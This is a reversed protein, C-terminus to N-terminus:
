HRFRPQRLLDLSAERLAASKTAGIRLRRHFGIMTEAASASDISWQSVVTSPCGALFLAWAMGIVGEGQRTRGRASDCASLVVLDSRLPLRAIERGELLGDDRGAPAFLLHSYLPNQDNLVGHTAIHVIRADVIEARLRQETAAAGTFVRQADGYLRAIAALQREAEPLAPLGAAAPPNGFALLALPASRHSTTLRRMEALATLSPAYSLSAHEALYRGDDVVLAQFPLEWLAGDPIVILEKRDRWMPWSSGLLRAFLKKSAADFGLDRQAIQQRLAKVEKTLAAATIAVGRVRVSSPTVVFVFTRNPTVVFEIAASGDRLAAPKADSTVDRQLLDLLVRAKAQEAYRLSEAPESAALLSVIGLYPNLRSEFFLARQQESGGSQKRGAEVSEIGEAYAARAEKRRGLARLSDGRVTAAAVVVPAVNGRATALARDALYLALHPAGNEQALLAADTEAVAAQAPDGVSQSLTWAQMYLRMAERRQGRQRAIEGLNIAAGAVGMPDKTQQKIALSREYYGQARTLENRRIAINGLNNLAFSRIRDNNAADALELAKEFWSQAEDLDGFVFANNGLNNTVGAVAEAEGLKAFMSRAIRLEALAQALNGRTREAVALSNHIYAITRPDKTHAFAENLLDVAEGPENRRTAYIAIAQLESAIIDDDGALRALELAEQDYPEGKSFQRENFWATGIAALARALPVLARQERAHKELFLGADRLVPPKMDRQVSKLERAFDDLFAPTPGGSEALLCEREDNTPARLIRKALSEDALLPLAFALLLLLRRIM